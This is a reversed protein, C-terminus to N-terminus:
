RFFNGNAIEADIVATPWQSLPKGSRETLVDPGSSPRGRLGISPKSRNTDWSEGEPTAILTTVEYPGVIRGGYTLLKAISLGVVLGQASAVM